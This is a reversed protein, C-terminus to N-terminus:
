YKGSNSKIDNYRIALIFTFVLCWFILNLLLRSFRNGASKEKQSLM